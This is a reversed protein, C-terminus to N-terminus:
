LAQRVPYAAPRENNGVISVTRTEGDWEVAADMKESVFRLPIFTRCDVIKAPIDLTVSEGNVNAIDSDIVFVIKSRGIIEVTKASEDWIVELGLGEAVSRIPILTFDNEIYPM